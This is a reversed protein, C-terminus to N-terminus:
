GFCYRKTKFFHNLFFGKTVKINYKKFFERQKILNEETDFDCHDTFCAIASFPIKSRSFEVGVDKSFLLALAYKLNLPSKAQEITKVNLKDYNAIPKANKPNFHWYLTKSKREIEWIGINQNAQVITGDQLKLIKPSYWNAFRKQNLDM